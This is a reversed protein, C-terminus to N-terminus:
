KYQSAAPAQNSGFYKKTLKTLTGNDRLKKLETNVAKQLKSESQPFIFYEYTKFEPYKSLDTPITDTLGTVAGKKVLNEAASKSAFLFDIKGSSIEKLRDTLTNGSYNIVIKKNPHEKNWKTMIDGYNTGTPIETSKGALGAITTIKDKSRSFIANIGESLPYSFLYKEARAPTKGFNNMAMTAHGGDLALLIADDKYIKTEFKYAPLAADIKQLVEVEFGVFKGKDNTYEYPNSNGSTAVTITTTALATRQIGALAAFTAVGLIGTFLISKVKM